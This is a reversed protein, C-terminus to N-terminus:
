KKNGTDYAQFYVMKMAEEDPFATVLVNNFMASFNRVGTTGAKELSVLPLEVQLDNYQPIIVM